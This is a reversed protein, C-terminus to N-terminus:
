LYIEKQEACSRHVAVIAKTSELGAVENSDIALNNRICDVFYHLMQSPAGVMKGYLPYYLLTNPHTYTENTAVHVCTDHTDVFIRGDDGVVDVKMDYRLPMKTPLVFSSLLSVTGGGDLKFISQITDYTDIGKSQLIGKSGVAFVSKVKQGSFWTALDLIHPYMYWAPSSKAAWPLAVTPVFISTALTANFYLFNGIQGEDISSKATFYPMNWRNEFAVLCKVGNKQVAEVMATADEVTTAFPKECLINVKNEAAYVVPDRHTADPTAVVVADLHEKDIMDHYDSYSTCGFESAVKDAREKNLDAVSVLKAYPSQQLTRAFVNGRTGTGIIGFRVM